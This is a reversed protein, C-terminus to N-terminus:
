IRTILSVKIVHGTEGIDMVWPLWSLVSKVGLDPRKKDLDVDHQWALTRMLKEDKPDFVSLRAHNVLVKLANMVDLYGDSSVKPKIFDKIIKHYKDEDLHLTTGASKMSLLSSYRLGLGHFTKVHIDSLDEMVLQSWTMAQDYDNSNLSKFCNRKYFHPRDRATRIANM